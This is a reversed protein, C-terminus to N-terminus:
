FGVSLGLRIQRPLTYWEARNVFSEPTGVRHPDYSIVDPDITTTYEPTGTDSYVAIADQTDFLNYINLFVDLYTGGVPIRKNLYLDVSKQSPLRGSNEQIGIFKSGGVLDGTAWSPTYPLGTQYRGIVSATWTGLRYVIRGNLTHRQDWSLPIINKRLEENSNLANFADDPHSYTGEVVQFLYDIGGSFHNSYRKELKFTIGRVNAYEKNEYQSYKVSPVPTSILPSTGVWDRIDKYFLTVDVGIDETIQQQLGIEYQVTREPKLDPNGFIMYGGSQALKFDPNSYLYQFEPIQFFHGYSFHIVGRDTIPYAVGLRPSIAYNSSAPTQMFARREEPTYQHYLAEDASTYRRLQKNGNEDLIYNGEYDKIYWEEEPANDYRNRVYFPDYINPDRPDVPVNTNSNFYDFRVGVNINVDQLEILDQLYVSFENPDRTYEHHFITGSEPVMPEFPDITESGLLAPRISYQELKLEHLRAEFGMKVQHDQHVQSTLDLKGIWYASSRSIHSMSMGGANYSHSIPPATSDPHVYGQNGEPDVVYTPEIGDRRLQRLLAEGEPTDPDIPDFGFANTYASDAPVRILYDCAELPNEYVYQEYENYFRTIRAEYFTNPSLVHNWAMIHTLGYGNQQPLGGPTYKYAQYTIGDEINEARDNKWQNYFLNYSFKLNSNLRWTLKSQGSYKWYPNLAVLGSDGANKQPTFWERGYLHGETSQYRGNVFFTLKDGLFPVPGSLNFETNYAPNFGKLPNEEVGVTKREGTESDRIVNVENLVNFHDDNSVYDGVYATLEGAYDQSGEKTIINVIGSMAKGYEANFTGSVVQLEQIASNEVTVGMSNSFVDTTAVGDVWFAVEGGRGGRIHIDEGSRVVGAQLMLVDEMNTVPLAEIEDASVMSHSSTMGPNVLPREAVVTVSEETGIVTPTLSFNVSATQDISVRVNEVIMPTYGMMTAKVAYVGPPINLVNFNGDLNSAAGILTGEIIINAGALPQQTEQDIVEGAIKGTTGALVPGCLLSILILFVLTLMKRM